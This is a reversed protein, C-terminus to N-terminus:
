VGYTNTEEALRTLEERHAELWALLTLAEQPRYGTQTSKGSSLVVDSGRIWVERSRGLEARDRPSPSPRSM